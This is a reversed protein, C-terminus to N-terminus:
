TQPIHELSSRQLSARVSTTVSDNESFHREGARALASAQWVSVGLVHAITAGTAGAFRRLTYAVIARERMRKRPHSVLERRTTALAVLVAPLVQRVDGPEQQRQPQPIEPDRTHREARGLADQVFAESGLYVQGRLASWPHRGQGEAVFARYREEAARPSADFQAHTWATELWAPPPAEGATAHYSSWPWQAPSRVLGARVPNLVVYRLLELLHSDREVLISKFRGQFLHGVREHRRNFAQTYVGNLHRMGRSLSPIPTEVILHYHNGMLVYGHLRWAFLVVVKALLDLWIVRDRDDRFIERRENGRATVHWVAGPHDLRLPRSVHSPHALGLALDPGNRKADWAPGVVDATLPPGKTM